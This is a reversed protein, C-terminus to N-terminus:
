NQIRGENDQTNDADNAQGNSDELIHPRGQQHREVGQTQEVVLLDACAMKLYMGLDEVIHFGLRQYLRLARNFREVYLIIPKHAARAEAILQQVLMTGIGLGRDDPLLAIDILRIEVDSRSVYIRGIARDGLLIIRRDANTYHANYHATQAQFQQQLFLDCQAPPLGWASVEEIRTSRYLQSLFAEDAPVVPRFAIAGPDITQLNM